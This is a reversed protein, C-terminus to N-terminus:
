PRYIKPSVHPTPETSRFIRPSAAPGADPDPATQRQRSAPHRPSESTRRLRGIIIAAALVGIALGCLVVDFISTIQQALNNGYVPNAPAGPSTEFRPALVIGVIIRSASLTVLLGFLSSILRAPAAEAALYFRLWLALAATALDFAVLTMTDYRSYPFNLMVATILDTVRMAVSSLCWVAILTLSSRAAAQWVSKAIPPANSSRFLTLPAFLAAGAAWVLYGEYGVGATSTNQAIGHFADIERGIPLVWVLIGAVLTSAGLWIVAVRNAETARLLWRSAVLVAILAVVGYVVATSIVAINQRGFGSGSASPQLAYRVRWCLNFGTNLAAAFMSGYGIVQAAGLWRTYKDDRAATDTIVPQASLLAGTIGLWAGPGVGGPVHVTGGSRITQVSDFVVFAAVLVIYPLNLALRLRGALVPNSQSGSPRGPGAYTVVLSLLSLLTVALLLGSVSRSTNPIRFGFYLNWPFFLAAVVLAGATM